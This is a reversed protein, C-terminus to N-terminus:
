SLLFAVGTGKDQQLSNNDSGGRGTGGAGWLGVRWRCKDTYGRAWHGWYNWMRTLWNTSWRPQKHYFLLARAERFTRMHHSVWTEGAQRGRKLMWVIMQCQFSNVLGLAQVDPMLAACCWLLCGGVVTDLVQLRKHISAKRCLVHKMSWFAGRAKAILPAITESATATVSLNLGMVDLCPQPSLRQGEIVISQGSRAHPSVYAQCKDPNLELGWQKMVTALQSVRRGLVAQDIDWFVADDM